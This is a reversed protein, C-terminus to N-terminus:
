FGSADMRKNSGLDVQQDRGLYYDPSIRIESAVITKTHTDDSSPVSKKLSLRTCFDATAKALRKTAM